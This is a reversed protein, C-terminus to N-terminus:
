REIVLRLSSSGQPSSLTAIYVGAALCETSLAFSHAKVEMRLAEHGSADHVMLTLGKLSVQGGIEVKLRGGSSVPNPVITFPLEGVAPAIGGPQTHTTDTRGTDPPNGYCDFFVANSWPSWTMTDQLLCDHHCRARVYAQFDLESTMGHDTLEISTLSTTDRWLEDFPVDTLGWAVEYLNCDEVEDWALNPLISGDPVVRLGEVEPCGYDYDDTDPIIIPCYSYYRMVGAWSHDWTIATVTSDDYDLGAVFFPSPGSDSYDHGSWYYGENFNDSSICKFTFIYDSYCFPYTRKTAERRVYNGLYFTDSVTIPEDFYLAYGPIITDVRECKSTIEHHISDMFSQHNFYIYCDTPQGHVVNSATLRIQPNQYDGSDFTVLAGRLINHTYVNREPISDPTLHFRMAVGAIRCRRHCPPLVFRVVNLSNWEMVGRPSERQSIVDFRIVSDFNGRNSDSHAGIYQLSELDYYIPKDVGFAYLTDQAKLAGLALIFCM